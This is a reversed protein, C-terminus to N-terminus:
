SVTIPYLSTNTNAFGAWAETGAPYTYVSGEGITTGGFAETILFGDAPTYEPDTGGTDGGGTDGVPCGNYVDTALTVDGTVTVARNAGLTNDCDAPVAEQSVWAGLAYKYEHDGQPINVTVTWINDGDDDSMPNCAGCWSNFTSQLTPNGDTLDVGTMDVSFTVDSNVPGTDTGGTDGGGTDGGTTQALNDIYITWADTGDGPQTLDNFFAIKTQDAPMAGTFDYSLAEWGSGTHSAVREVNAADFKLTIDRAVTSHVAATVIEGNAADVATDLNIWVGAWNQGAGKVYKLSVAGDPGAEVTAVGGDFGAIEYADAAEEFDVPLAITASVPPEPDTGGTDGGSTDDGPCGSYVDTALTVDGTVTVARNAGLTNDCDAPVSEQSVWAGLAYKYEHDGQPINVTVTWINDGDDDSMPNCAGCWNNFTSQLTPNGDTLDVGTMDVSFTVDKPGTDTGGTDGGGTDGGTTQALNDIYITWADTGDGPQTLDNFFAIKTQDAPMAGTFDYSLAEWGSGTHSAVREVNAADFKLTIDRAVTSHVAATVIEGNAADVATDLNIWVGAWNQGAGKVYKLSVAGDPGAEVTAVGGDFGAIEYADAAEEFDVPLAITASVPPEPDTGGTDGGSTDDGPCGSYVDTALTVDGTVTVARNAGLTNDCDAPVSEQSVWAGLAYKYEHDGQPINVTVTWINDGDDDSMPNCAGCWNNFTSQLTPNGDTLDVGTMDVSFTVDKPGTDTGGTDGGGTDGGTTQALNDIYITWADTGDGPQTLDNFFAIKTQDAPMAGTFDYSLAEWGSGTHSAVREVNAADFKLTIDRAVTSHVAATVIEGNAADVATDLNIWVGAWNQGAGKVYKLSVAGDPGAEVTAVGGDFGAIEYADAAEEFDVPLAITASVPPEPDTGGTDGGSTDDGPCGSYVDTALTVDGTVTVARNAGLTNDCDAPVSEQSVWAGLAYKYEHDGQPINVTVTWINDGDDDSMPNCAGCWNNFTSQLTPNGDTLDVGTMDVSFTVDKPGTDTGGTDGGGTDGGTTQALNDIYITWADTGDGPQTLDNFFAIKTQDAPMAGTFDYSLAEWGSGTHSAVREVNAADFKLTIDRAVTSHVAATVIEGNAADVATDLNIWVGAWNQGAGKVYKLSVAGDPGAEVTAVGGDFGAIEYADAAEEFDVPLAITASVPPEPDTGGTDGGTDTSTGACAGATESRDGSGVTWYRNGWASYDTNITGADIEATCEGAAAPTVLDEQVGDLLWKYEMTDAPAPDFVVTWTGDGNDTAAPGGTGWDWWPGTLRVSSSGEPAAVTLNIDEAQAVVAFSSIFLAVVLLMSSKMNRLVGSIYSSVVSILHCM